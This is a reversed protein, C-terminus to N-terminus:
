GEKNNNKMGTTADLHDPEGEPGIIATEVEYRTQYMTTTSSGLRRANSSRHYCYSDHMYTIIATYILLLWCYINHLLYNM